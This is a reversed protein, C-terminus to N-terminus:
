KSSSSTSASFIASSSRNAASSAAMAAALSEQDHGRPVGGGAQVSGGELKVVLLGVSALLLLAFM